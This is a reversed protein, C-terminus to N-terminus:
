VVLIAAGGTFYYITEIDDPSKKKLLAVYLPPLIHPSIKDIYGIIFTVTPSDFGNKCLVNGISPEMLDM